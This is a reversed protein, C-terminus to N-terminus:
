TVLYKTMKSTRWQAYLRQAQQTSKRTNAPTSANLFSTIEEEDVDVFPRVLPQALYILFALLNM